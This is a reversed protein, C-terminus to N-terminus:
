GQPLQDTPVQALLHAILQHGAENPHTHDSELLRTAADKGAPGNFAHYTDICMAQHQAAIRCTTRAFDTVVRIVIPDVSAPVAPDGIIDDYDNTVLILTPKGARLTTIGALVTALNRGYHAVTKALCTGHYTAWGANPYGKHGDCPDTGTNWPTDNHGVSVTVVDADAVANRMSADTGIERALDRSTIETDQSLNQTTVRAGNQRELNAAYLDIFTACDGCFHQGFPISDGLAVLHLTPKSSASSPASSGSSDCGALLMCTVMLVLIARRRNLNHPM